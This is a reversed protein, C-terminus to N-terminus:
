FCSSLGLIVILAVILEISGSILRLRNKDHYDKDGKDFLCPYETWAAILFSIEKEEFSRTKRSTAKSKRGGNKQSSASQVRSTASENM